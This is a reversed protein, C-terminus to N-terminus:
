IKPEFKEYKTKSANLTQPKQPAASVRPSLFFLFFHQEMLIWSIRFYFCSPIAQDTSPVPRRTVLRQVVRLLLWCLLDYYPSFIVPNSYNLNPVYFPYNSHYTIWFEKCSFILFEVTFKQHLHFLLLFQYLRRSSLWTSSPRLKKPGINSFRIPLGM